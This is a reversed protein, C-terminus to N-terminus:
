RKPFVEAYRRAARDWRLLPFFERVPDIVAPAGAPAEGRAVLTEHVMAYGDATDASTPALSADLTFVGVADTNVDLRAHRVRIGLTGDAMPTIVDVPGSAESRGFRAPKPFVLFALPEGPPCSTCRYKELEAPASGNPNLADLVSLSGARRENNCAGVLLRPRAGSPDLAATVISGATWYTSLPTGTKPDLRQISSPFLASDIIVAWIARGAGGEPDATVFARDVIWSPGFTDAGFRVSLTPQYVWRVSGDHNFVCLATDAPRGPPRAVFWVERRGDRDVDAVGGLVARPAVASGQYYDGPLEHPFRHRWLERGRADSVVLTDLDVHWGAPAADAAPIGQPSTRVEAPHLSTWAFWSVAIVGATILATAAMRVLWTRTFLPEPRPVPMDDGPGSHDQLGPAQSAAAPSAGARASAGLSTEIWADMERPMAFVSEPRSTGFRRVPLGFEKEWRQVTRVSRGLYAAIEKWGNLQSPRGTTDSGDTSSSM